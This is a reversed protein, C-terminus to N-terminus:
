RRRTPRDAHSAEHVCVTRGTYPQRAVDGEVDILFHLEELAVRDRSRCRRACDGEPCSRGLRWLLVFSSDNAAAAGAHMGAQFNIANTAKKAFDELVAVREELAAVREDPTKTPEDM